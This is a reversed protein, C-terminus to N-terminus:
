ENYLADLEHEFVEDLKNLLEENDTYLGFDYLTHMRMQPGWREVDSPEFDELDLAKRMLDLDDTLDLISAKKLDIDRWDKTM